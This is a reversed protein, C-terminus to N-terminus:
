VLALEHEGDDRQPAFSNWKGGAFLTLVIMIISSILEANFKANVTECVIRSASVNEEDTGNEGGDANRAALPPDPGIKEFHIM